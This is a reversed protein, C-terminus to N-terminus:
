EFDEKGLREYTFIRQIMMTKNDTMMNTSVRKYRIQRMATDIERAKANMIELDYGIIKIQFQIRSYGLTDGEDIAINSLEMYMICPISVGSNVTMEHYTPLINSLTEKVLINDDIM